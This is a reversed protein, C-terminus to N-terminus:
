ARRSGRGRGRAGARVAFWLVFAVVALASAAALVVLAPTAPAPRPKGDPAPAQAPEPREGFMYHNLVYDETMPAQGLKAAVANHVKVTWSFLADAGADVAAPIGPATKDAIESYGRACTICPIVTRLSEYFDVYAKRTAPDPSPPLGLAVVHITRWMPEGWVSPTIKRQSEM